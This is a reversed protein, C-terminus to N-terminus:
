HSRETVSNTSLGEVKDDRQLVVPCIEDLSCVDDKPLNQKFFILMLREVLCYSLYMIVIQIQFVLQQIILM